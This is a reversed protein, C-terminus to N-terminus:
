HFRSARLVLCQRKARHQYLRNSTPFAFQRGRRNGSGSRLDARDHCSYDHSMPIVPLCRQDCRPALGPASWSRVPAHRRDRARTRSSRWALMTSLTTMLPTVASGIGLRASSFGCSHSIDKKSFLRQNTFICAFDSCMGSSM